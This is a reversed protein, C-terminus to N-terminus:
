TVSSPGTTRFTLWWSCRLSQTAVPPPPPPPPSLCIKLCASLCLCAPPLCKLMIDRGKNCRSAQTIIPKLTQGSCEGSSRCHQTLGSARFCLLSLSLSVSLCVPLCCLYYYGLVASGTEPSLLPCVIQFLTEGGGGRGNCCSAATTWCRHSQTAVPPPPPPPPLSTIESLCAPLGASVPLCVPLPSLVLKEARLAKSHTLPWTEAKCTGPSFSRTNSGSKIVM